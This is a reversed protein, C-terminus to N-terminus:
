KAWLEFSTAYWMAYTVSSAYRFPSASSTPVTFLAALEFSHSREPDLAFGVGSVMALNTMRSSETTETGRVFTLSPDAELLLWMQKSVFYSTAIHAFAATSTLGEGHVGLMPRLGANLTLMVDGFRQSAHLEPSFALSQGPTFIIRPSLTLQPIVSFRPAVDVSGFSASSPSRGFIASAGVYIDFRESLGVTGYMLPIITKADGSVVLSPFIVATGEPTPFSPMLPYAHASRPIALLGGLLALALSSVLRKVLPRM